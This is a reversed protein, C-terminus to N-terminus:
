SYCRRPEDHQREGELEWDKNSLVMEVAERVLAAEETPHLPIRLKRAASVSRHLIAKMRENQEVTLSDLKKRLGVVEGNAKRGRAIKQLERRRVATPSNNLQRKTM